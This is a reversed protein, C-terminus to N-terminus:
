CTRDAKDVFTDQNERSGKTELVLGERLGSSDRVCAEANAEGTWNREVCPHDGKLFHTM